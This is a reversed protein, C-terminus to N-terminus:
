SIIYPVRIVHKSCTFLLDGEYNYMIYTLAREHGKLLIPKM